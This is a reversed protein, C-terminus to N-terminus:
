ALALLTRATLTEYPRVEVVPLGHREAEDRLWLGYLWQGHVYRRQVEIDMAAFDASRRQMNALLVEEDPEFLFVARVRGDVDRGAFSRKAAMTPHITDGELLVPRSVADHNAVVIELAQSVIRGVDILTDRFAEPPLGWFEQRAVCHLAPQESPTTVRELVLRFDDVELWSIGYLRAVKPALMTKGIGSNGGILLVSWPPQDNTPM